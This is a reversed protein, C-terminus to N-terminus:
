PMLILLYTMQTYFVLIDGRAAKIGKNLADYIDKDPESIVTTVRPCM